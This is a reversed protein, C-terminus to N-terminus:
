GCYVNTCLLGCLYGCCVVSDCIVVLRMDTHQRLKHTSLLAISQPKLLLRTRYLSFFFICKSSYVLTVKSKHSRNHQLKTQVKGTQYLLISIKYHYKHFMIGVLAHFCWYIICKILIFSLQGFISWDV